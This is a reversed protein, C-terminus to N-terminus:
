DHERAGRGAQAVVGVDLLKVQAEGFDARALGVAVDLVVLAAFAPQALPLSREIVRIPTHPLRGTSTAVSPRVAHAEILLAGAGDSSRRSPPRSPMAPTTSANTVLASASGRRPGAKLDSGAVLTPGSLLLMASK